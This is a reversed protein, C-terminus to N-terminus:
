LRHAQASLEWQLACEQVLCLHHFHASIYSFVRPGRKVKKDLEKLKEVNTVEHETYQGKIKEVSKIENNTM